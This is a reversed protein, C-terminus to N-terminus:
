DVWHRCDEICRDCVKEDGIEYYYEYMAEGCWDCHPAQDEAKAQERDYADFADANDRIIM